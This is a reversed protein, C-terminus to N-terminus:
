REIKREIGLDEEIWAMVTKVEDMMREFEEANKIDHCSFKCDEYDWIIDWLLDMWDIPKNRTVSNMEEEKLILHTTM